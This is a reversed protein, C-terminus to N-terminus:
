EFIEPYTEEIIYDVFSAEQEPYAELILAKMKEIRRFYLIEMSPDDDTMEADFSDRDIKDKLFGGIEAKLDKETGEQAKLNRYSKHSSIGMVIFIVFLVGMVGTVMMKNFGALAIPIIGLNLLVLAIIGLVGVVLLTDAGSKYEEAKKGAEQYAGKYREQEVPMKAPVEEENSGELARLVRWQSMLSKEREKGAINVLYVNIQKKAEAVKNQAVLLEFTNEKEDFVVDTETISNARMFDSIKRLETEEGFVVPVLCNNLSDILEAGCDACITYGEKYENKCKPCWPM